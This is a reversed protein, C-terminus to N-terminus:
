FKVSIGARAVFFNQIKATDNIEPSSLNKKGIYNLAEVRLSVSNTIAYDIGAGVVPRQQSFAMRVTKRGSYPASNLPNFFVGNITGRGNIIGLGTTGFFLVRDFSFGLRARLSGYARVQYSNDVGTSTSVGSPTGGLDAELGYVINGRQLNYGVHLGAVAGSGSGRAYRNDWANITGAGINAGAYAGAWSYANALTPVPILSPLDTAFATSFLGVFATASLLFKKMKLRDGSKMRIKAFVVALSVLRTVSPKGCVQPSPTVYQHQESACPQSYDPSHAQWSALATRGDLAGQRSQLREHYVRQHRLRDGIM